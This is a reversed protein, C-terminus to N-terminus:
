GGISSANADAPHVSPEDGSKPSGAYLRYVGPGQEQAAVAASAAMVCAVAERGHQIARVMAASSFRCDATIEPGAWPPLVLPHDEAPLEVDATVLGSLPGTYEDVHWVLSSVAVDHRRKRLPPAGGFEEAMLAAEALTLPVHFESRRIGQRNGKLTLAATGACIRIRVKGKPFVAILHDEIHQSRVIRSRWTDHVVLFKREIELALGARGHDSTGNGVPAKRCERPM